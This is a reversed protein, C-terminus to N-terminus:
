LSNAALRPVLSVASLAPGNRIPLSSPMKTKSSSRRARAGSETPASPDSAQAASIGSPAETEIRSPSGDLM